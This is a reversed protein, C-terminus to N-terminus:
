SNGIRRPQITFVKLSWKLTQVWTLILFPLRHQHLFLREVHTLDLFPSFCGLSHKNSRFIILWRWACDSELLLEVTSDWCCYILLKRGSKRESQNGPCLRVSGLSDEQTKQNVLSYFADEIDKEERTGIDPWYLLFYFFVFLPWCVALFFTFHCLFFGLHFLDRILGNLDWNPPM